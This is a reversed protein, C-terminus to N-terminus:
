RAKDETSAPKAPPPDLLKKVDPDDVLPALCPDARVAARDLGDPIAQGLHYLASQRLGPRREPAAVSWAVVYARALAAQHWPSWRGHLNFGRVADELARGALEARRAPEQELLALRGSVMVRTVLAGPHDPDGAIVRSLWTFAQRLQGADSPALAVALGRLHLGIGDDDKCAAAVELLGPRARLTAELAAAQQAHLSAAYAMARLGKAEDGADILARGAVGTREASRRAEELQEERTPAPAGPARAPQAPRAPQAAPRGGGVGFADRPLPKTEPSRGHEDGDEEEELPGADGRDLASRLRKARLTHELAAADAEARKAAAKALAQLRELPLEVVLADRVQSVGIGHVRCAAELATAPLVRRLRLSVPLELDALAEDPWAVSAGTDRALAAVVDALPAGEVDCSWGDGDKRFLAPAEDDARAAVAALLVLLPALARTM